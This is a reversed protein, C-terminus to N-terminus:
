MQYFFACMGGNVFGILLPMRTGDDKQIANIVAGSLYGTIAWVALFDMNQSAITKSQLHERLSIGCLNLVAYYMYMEWTITGMPTSQKPM